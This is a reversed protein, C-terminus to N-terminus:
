IGERARATRTRVILRGSGPQRGRRPRARSEATVPGTRRTKPVGDGATSRATSRKPRRKQSKTRNM